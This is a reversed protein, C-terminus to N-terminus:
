AGVAVAGRAPLMEQWGPLAQAPVIFEFCRSYCRLRLVRADGSSGGTRVCNDYEVESVWHLDLSAEMDQNEYFLTRKTLAMAVDTRRDGDVFDGRTVMLSGDRRKEMLAQITDAGFRRMLSRCLFLVAAAAALSLWTLM